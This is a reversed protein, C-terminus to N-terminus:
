KIIFNYRINWGHLGFRKIQAIIGKSMCEYFQGLLIRSCGEYYIKGQQVFLPIAEKLLKYAKEM